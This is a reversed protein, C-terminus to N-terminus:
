KALGMEAFLARLSKRADEIDTENSPFGGAALEDNIQELTATEIEAYTM